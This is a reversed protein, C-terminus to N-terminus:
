PLRRAIVAGGFTPVQKPPHRRNDCSQRTSWGRGTTGARRNPPRDVSVHDDHTTRKITRGASHRRELLLRCRWFCPSTDQFSQARPCDTARCGAFQADGDFRSATEKWETQLLWESHVRVEPEARADVSGLRDHCFLSRPCPSSPAGSDAPLVQHVGNANGYERDHSEHEGALCLLVAFSRAGVRRNNALLARNM